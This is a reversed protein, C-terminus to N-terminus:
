LKLCTSGSSQFPGESVKANTDAGKEVTLQFAQHSLSEDNVTRYNNTKKCNVIQILNTNIRKSM